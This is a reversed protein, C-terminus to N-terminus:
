SAMALDLDAFALENRAAYSAIETASLTYLGRSGHEAVTSLFAHDPRDIFLVDGTFSYSLTSLLNDFEIEELEGEIVLREVPTRHIVAGFIGDITTMKLGEGTKWTLRKWTPNSSVLTTTENM